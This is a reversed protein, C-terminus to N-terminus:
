FTGEWKRIGRAKLREGPEPKKEAEEGWPDPKELLSGAIKLVAERSKLPLRHYGAWLRAIRAEETM